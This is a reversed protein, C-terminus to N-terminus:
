ASDLEAGILATKDLHHDSLVIAKTQSNPHLQSGSELNNSPKQLQDMTLAKSAQAVLAQNNSREMAEATNINEM